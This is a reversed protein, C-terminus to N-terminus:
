SQHPSLARLAVDELRKKDRKGTCAAALIVRELKQRVLPTVAMGMVLLQYWVADYAATMAALDDPGFFLTFDQFPM